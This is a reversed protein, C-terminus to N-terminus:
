PMVSTQWLPPSATVSIRPQAPKESQIAPLSMISCICIYARYVTTIRGKNGVYFLLSIVGGRPSKEPHYGHQYYECCGYHHTVCSLLISSPLLLSWCSEWSHRVMAQEVSFLWHIEDIIVKTVEKLPPRLSTWNVPCCWVWLNTLLLLLIFRSLNNLYTSSYNCFQVSLRPSTLFEKSTMFFITLLALNSYVFLQWADEEVHNNLSKPRSLCWMKLPGDLEARPFDDTGWPHCNQLRFSLSRKMHHCHHTATDWFTNWVTQFM